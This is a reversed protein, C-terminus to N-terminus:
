KEQTKEEEEIKRMMRKTEKIIGFITVLFSSGVLSFLIISQTDFYEDLWNGLFLALVVPGAIWGSLRFFIIIEPRQWVEKEDKKLQTKSM